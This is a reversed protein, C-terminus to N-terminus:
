GGRGDCALRGADVGEVGARREVGKVSIGAGNSNWLEEGTTGVTMLALCLNM